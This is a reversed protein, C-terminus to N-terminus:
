RSHGEQVRLHSLQATSETEPFVEAIPTVLFTWDDNTSTPRLHQRLSEPVKDVDSRRLILLRREDAEVAVSLMTDISQDPHIAVAGANYFSASYPTRGVFVVQGPIREQRAIETAEALVNRTSDESALPGATVIVLAWTAVAGAALKLLDSRQADEGVITRAAWVAFLPITPLLYTALLQRSYCWFVINAAFALFLFLSADDAFAKRIGAGGKKVLLWTALPSWPLSSVLFMV